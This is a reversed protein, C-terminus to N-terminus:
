ILITLVIIGYLAYENYQRRIFQPPATSIMGTEEYGRKAKTRGPVLSREMDEM